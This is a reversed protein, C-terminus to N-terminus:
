LKEFVERLFTDVAGVLTKVSSPGRLANGRLTAREEVVINLKRVGVLPEAAGLVIQVSTGLTAKKEVVTAPEGKVARLRLM